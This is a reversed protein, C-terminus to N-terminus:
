HAISNSWRSLTWQLMSFASADTVLADPCFDSTTEDAAWPFADLLLEVIALTVNENRCVRHLFSSDRIGLPIIDKLWVKLADASLDNSDCFDEFDVFTSGHEDWVCPMLQEERGGVSM